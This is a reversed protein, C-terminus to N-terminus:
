KCHKNLKNLTRKHKRHYRKDAFIKICKRDKLICNPIEIRDSFVISIMEISSQTLECPLSEISTFHLLLIRTNGYLKPNTPLTIISNGAIKLDTLSPIQCTYILISDLNSLYNDEFYARKLFKYNLLFNLNARKLSSERIQIENLSDSPVRFLEYFKPDNEPYIKMSAIVMKKVNILKQIVQRMKLKNNSFNETLRFDFHTVHDFHSENLAYELDNQNWIHLIGSDFNNKWFLSTEKTLAIFSFAIFLIFLFTKKM